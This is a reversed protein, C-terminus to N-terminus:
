LLSRGARMSAWRRSARGSAGEASTADSEAALQKEISAIEPAFAAVEGRAKDLAVQERSSDLEVLVHGTAVRRGVGLHVATVRGGVSTAARTPAPVVELRAHESSRYISVRAFVMWGAWALGCAVAVVGVIYGARSRDGGLARMTLQFPQGM